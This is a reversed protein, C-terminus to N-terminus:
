RLATELGAGPIVQTVAKKRGECDHEFHSYYSDALASIHETSVFDRVKKGKPKFESQDPQGHGVPAAIAQVSVESESSSSSSTDM